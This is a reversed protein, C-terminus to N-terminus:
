NYIHLRKKKNKNRTCLSPLLYRYWTQYSYLICPLIYIAYTSSQLIAAAAADISLSVALLPDFMAHTHAIVLSLFFLCSNWVLNYIALHSLPFGPISATLVSGRGFPQFPIRGEVSFITMVEGVVTSRSGVYIMGYGVGWELLRRGRAGCGWCVVRRVRWGWLGM